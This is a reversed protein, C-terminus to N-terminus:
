SNKSTQGKPRPTIGFGKSTKLLKTKEAKLLEYKEKYFEDPDNLLKFTEGIEEDYYIKSVIGGSVGFQKGVKRFLAPGIPEDQSNLEKVRGIVTTGIRRRRREAAVSKRKAVAVPRGFVDDWSKPISLYAEIIAKRAWAPLKVNFQSCTVITRMLARKDGGRRYERENDDFFTSWFKASDEDASM